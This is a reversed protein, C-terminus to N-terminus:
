YVVMEEDDLKLLAVVKRDHDFHYGGAACIQGETRQPARLSVEVRGGTDTPLLYAGSMQDVGTLYGLVSTAGGVTQALVLSGSIEEGAVFPIVRINTKPCVVWAYRLRVEGYRAKSPSSSLSGDQESAQPGTTNRKLEAKPNRGRESSVNPFSVVVLCSRELESKSKHQLNAMAVDRVSRFMRLIDLKFDWYGTKIRELEDSVKDTYEAPIVKEIKAGMVRRINVGTGSLRIRPREALSIQLHQAFDAVGTFCPAGFTSVRNTSTRLLQEQAYAMFEVHLEASAGIVNAQFNYVDIGQDRITCIVKRLSTLIDDDERYDYALNCMSAWCAVMDAPFRAKRASM